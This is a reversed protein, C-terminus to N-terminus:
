HKAIYEQDFYTACLGCLTEDEDPEAMQALDVELVRGQHEVEDQHMTATLFTAVYTSGLGQYESSSEGM